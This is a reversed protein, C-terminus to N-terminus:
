KTGGKLCYAGSTTYGSPCSGSKPIADRASQSSALCYSGSTSYGSPCQGVKPLAVRASPSPACYGGSTSYGSPCQGRPPKPLPRPPQQASAQVAVVFFSTALLPPWLPSMSPSVCARGLSRASITSSYGIGDTVILCRPLTLMIASQRM